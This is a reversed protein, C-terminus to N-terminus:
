VTYTPLSPSGPHRQHVIKSKKPHSTPTRNQIKQSVKTSPKKLTRGDPDKIKTAKDQAWDTERISQDLTVRRLYKITAKEKTKSPGKNLRSFPDSLRPLTVSRPNIFPSM